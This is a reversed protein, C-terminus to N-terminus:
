EAQVLICTMCLNSLSLADELLLALEEMKASSGDGTRDGAAISDEM